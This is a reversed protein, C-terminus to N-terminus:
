ELSVNPCSEPIDFGFIPMKRTPINNFEGNHIADIIRRSIELNM